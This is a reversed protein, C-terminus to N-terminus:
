AIELSPRMMVAGAPAASISAPSAARTAATIASRGPRVWMCCAFALSRAEPALRQSGRPLARAATSSAGAMGLGPPTRAKGRCEGQFIGAGGDRSPLWGTWPSFVATGRPSRSARRRAQGAGGGGCSRGPGAWAGAALRPPSCDHAAWSPRAPVLDADLADEIVAPRVPEAAELDAAVARLCDAEAQEGILGRQVPQQGLDTVEAQGQVRHAPEVGAVWLFLRLFSVRAADPIAVPHRSSQRRQQPDAARIRWDPREHCLRARKTSAM